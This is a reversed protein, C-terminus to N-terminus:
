VVSRLFSARELRNVESPASRRMTQMDRIAAKESCAKFSDTGRKGEM